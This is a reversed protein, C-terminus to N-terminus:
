HTFILLSVNPTADEMRCKFGDPNRDPIAVVIMSEKHVYCHGHAYGISEHAIWVSKESM